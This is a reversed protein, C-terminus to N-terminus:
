VVFGGVRCLGLWLLVFLVFCPVGILCCYFSLYCFLCVGRLCYFQGLLDGVVVDYVFVINIYGLRLDCVLGLSGVVSNYLSYYM